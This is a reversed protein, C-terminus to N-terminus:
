KVSKSVPAFERDRKVRSKSHRSQHVIKRFAGAFEGFHPIRNKSQSAAVNRTRWVRGTKRRLWGSSGTQQSVSQSNEAYRLERVLSWNVLWKRGGAQPNSGAMTRCTGNEPSNDEHGNDWRAYSTSRGKACCRSPTASQGIWFLSVHLEHRHLVTRANEYVFDPTRSFRRLGLFNGGGGSCHSRALRRL